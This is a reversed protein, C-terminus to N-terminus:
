FLSLPITVKKEYGQRDVIYFHFYANTTIQFQNALKNPTLNMFLLRKIQYCLQQETCNACQWVSSYIIACATQLSFARYNKLTHELSDYDATQIGSYSQSKNPRFTKSWLKRVVNPGFFQKHKNNTEDFAMAKSTQLSGHVWCTPKYYTPRDKGTKFSPIVHINCFHKLTNWSTFDNNWSQHCCPTQM